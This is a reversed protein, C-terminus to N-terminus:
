ESKIVFSGVESVSNIEKRSIAGVKWYYTNGRILKKKGTYQVQTTSGDVVINWIEEGIRSATLVINYSQAGDVMEWTFTPNLSVYEYNIPSVLKVPPLIYDSVIASSTSEWGGKDVATIRYYYKLGVLVDIDIFNEQTVSAVYALSDEAESSSLARYIKYHDLDPEANPAWFITIKPYNINEAIADANSPPSPSTTNLPKGSIQLSIASENGSKDVASVGFFYLTEYDLESITVSNSQVFRRNALLTDAEAGGLWYVNYGKLNKDIVQFWKLSVAGNGISTIELGLPVPPPTIDTHNDDTSSSSCSLVSLTLLLQIYILIHRFEM